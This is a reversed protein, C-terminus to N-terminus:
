SALRSTEHRGRQHYRHAPRRPSEQNRLFLSPRHGPRDAMAAQTFTRDGMGSTHTLLQHVTVTGAIQAPFGDLYTGLTQYLGVKGQEVLQLVAVATFLKFWGGRCRAPVMM